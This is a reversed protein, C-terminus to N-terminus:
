HIGAPPPVPDMVDDPRSRIMDTLERRVAAYSQTDFVNDMEQPDEGLDYLEGAGSNEELTLKHRRTRVTRLKLDLGWGEPNLDWENYAFDRSAEDGELLGRLSKGHLPAGTPVAAYDLFTAPLDTTAVPHPNIRNKGVGPGRVILGVRLLGEYMLPGKLMMGHDGLWDGHDSSFVVLTNDALGLQQLSDLIRGVNHDILSIMSYYNAITHRLQEESDQYDRARGNRAPLRTLATEHDRLAADMGPDGATNEVYAKHWWPRREMDRVWHEPLDVEDPHHMRSWPHPCDFPVHPDAFSVWLAFPNERHEKLYAVTRDGCWTNHHWAPPLASHWTQLAHLDPALRTGYQELKAEGRGDRRLWREYHQGKPAAAQEKLEHGLVMLVVEQFGM